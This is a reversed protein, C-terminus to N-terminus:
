KKVKSLKASRKAAEVVRDIHRAAARGETGLYSSMTTDFRKHGLMRQVAFALGPDREIVIKAIAHRMLHPNVTLGAHKRLASVFDHRMTSHPRPGGDRGPFLYPGEHGPLRKRYETVFEKLLSSVDEPLEFELDQGNKVKLGDIFLITKGGARRLDTTLDITRLNQMRLCCTILLAAALAREMCKAARYPNRQKLARTREQQPFELLKTVNGPHDLQRLRDRNKSTLQRNRGVDLRKRIQELEKLRDPPLRCYHRAIFFLTNAIKAVYPTPKQESRKLFFRLGETFNKLEVLTQLTRIEAIQLNGQRILASAFRVVMQVQGQVSVPRLPRAPADPDLIDACLLRRQWMAVDRQFSEPFDQLPIAIVDQPFPSSLRSTPWGPVNRGCMNWHAITHKLMRRPNKVIEEAELAEIFSLLVNQGVKDPPVEMHSCFCALRHLANRYIRPEIKALLSGWDSSLTIRKTIPAPAEGYLRLAATVCSRVNAYRKESVGLQAASSTLFLERVAKTSARFQSLDRGFLRAITDLASLMDRRSSGLSRADVRTRLEQLSMPSNEVFAQRGRTEFDEKSKYM